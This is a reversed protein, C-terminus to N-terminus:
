FCIPKPFQPYISKILPIAPDSLILDQSEDFALITALARLHEEPPMDDSTQILKKLETVENEAKNQRRSWKAYVKKPEMLAYHHVESSYRNYSFSFPELDPIYQIHPTMYRDTFELYQLERLQSFQWDVQENIGQTFALFKFMHAALVVDHQMDFARQQQSLSM